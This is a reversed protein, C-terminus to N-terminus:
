SFLSAGRTRQERIRLGGTRKEVSSKKGQGGGGVSPMRKKEKTHTIGRGKVTRRARVWVREFAHISNGSCSKTKINVQFHISKQLLGGPGKKNMCTGPQIPMGSKLFFTRRLGV